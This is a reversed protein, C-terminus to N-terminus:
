KLLEIVYELHNMIVSRTSDNIPESSNNSLNTNPQKLNTNVVVTKNTIAFSANGSVKATFYVYRSDESTITVPVEIWRGDNYMNLVISSKDLGNAILWAKEVKFDVAANEINEVGGNDIWINFSQYINGAPPKDVLCSTSRLEEIIVTAKGSAKTSVFNINNVVSNNTINLTVNQNNSINMQITQSNNVNTQIESSYEKYLVDEGAVIVAGNNYMSSNDTIITDNDTSVSVFDDYSYISPDENTVKNANDSSNDADVNGEDAGSDGSSDSNGSNNGSSDGASGDNASNDSASDETAAVIDIGCNLLLILLVIYVLILKNM